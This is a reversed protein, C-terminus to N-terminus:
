ADVRRHLEGVAVASGHEDEVVAFRYGFQQSLQIRRCSVRSPLSDQSEGLDRRTGYVSSEVLTRPCMAGATNLSHAFLESLKLGRWLLYMGSSIARESAGARTTTARHMRLRSSHMM